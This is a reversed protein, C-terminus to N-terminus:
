WKEIDGAEGLMMGLGIGQRGIGKMDLGVLLWGVDILVVLEEVGEVEVGERHAVM